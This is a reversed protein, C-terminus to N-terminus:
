LRCFSLMQGRPLGNYTAGAQRHWFGDAHSLKGALKCAITIPQELGFTVNRNAPGPAGFWHENRGDSQYNVCIFVYVFHLVTLLSWLRAFATCPAVWFADLSLCNYPFYAFYSLLHADGCVSFSFCQVYDM